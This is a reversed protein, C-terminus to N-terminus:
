YLYDKKKDPLYPRASRTHHLANKKPPALKTHISSGISPMSESRAMGRLSM